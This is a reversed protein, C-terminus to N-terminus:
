DDTIVEHPLTMVPKEIRVQESGLNITVSFKEGAGMVDAQNGGVGGIRGLVEFLKVKHQLGEQRDHLRGFMEPLAEEVAALSKAKVRESTNMASNWVACEADLVQRFRWHNQLSEWQQDSIAYRKLITELPHLDMAIERAVKLITLDEGITVPLQVDSM